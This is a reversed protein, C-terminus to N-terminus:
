MAWEGLMRIRIARAFPSEILRDLMGYLRACGFADVPRERLSEDM